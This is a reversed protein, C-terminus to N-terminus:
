GRWDVLGTGSWHGFSTVDLKPRSLRRWVEIMNLVRIDDFMVIPKKPLDLSSLANIFKPETVGDKPGDIFIFDAERFLDAHPHIGGPAAIDAIEQRLRGTGFDSETLWTNKFDRWPVIDFTTIQADAAAASALALTGMGTFTGIEIIRRADLVQVLAALLKYHEGPWVDHWRTEGSARRDLEPFTIARARNAAALALDLLRDNPAPASDDASAIISIEKHRAPTADLVRRFAAMERLSRRLNFM